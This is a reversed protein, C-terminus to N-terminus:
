LYIVMRKKFEKLKGRKGNKTDCSPESKGERIYVYSLKSWVGYEM